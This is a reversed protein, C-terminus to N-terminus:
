EVAVLPLEFWFLSGQGEGTSDVGLSGGHHEIIKRCLALGLGSGEFHTHAQLRSFVKFLRDMQSPEIGIGRDRVEVRLSGARMTGHIHVQPPQDPEHYKLANGILNQLLRTLEDHSAFLEPWEGTITMECRSLSLEPQLFALAEDLCAQSSIKTKAEGKRGIRSYDLLSLIMADMRKAGNIAFDLCQQMDEDLKDALAQQILFLYSTVMRLPQRMDHSVAYAFQDLEANSRIIELEIQKHETIDRAIGFLGVIEGAQNKIPYKRNDVWGKKGSNDLIEQEEQVTPMGAFVQKELKYYVDAYDEPFVDYDTQGLLDTWHETPDTISVLTQSAGTFVHHNDKFYIYDDTNEMMAKFNSIMAQEAPNQGQGQHQSLSKADQLLLDLMVTVGSADPIKNYHSKICRIRGNAQRIRINLTGSINGTDIAFLIDALDQDHAHIRDKLSM